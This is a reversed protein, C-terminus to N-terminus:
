NTQRPIMFTSSSKSPNNILLYARAVQLEINQLIPHRNAGVHLDALHAFKYM